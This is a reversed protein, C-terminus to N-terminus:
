AKKNAFYRRHDEPSRIPLAEGQMGKEWAERLEQTSWDKLFDQDSSGQVVPDKPKNEQVKM